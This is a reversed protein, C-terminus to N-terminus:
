FYGAYRFHLFMTCVARYKPRRLVDLESSECANFHRTCEEFVFWIKIVIYQVIYITNISAHMNTGTGNVVNRNIRTMKCMDTMRFSFAEEKEEYM